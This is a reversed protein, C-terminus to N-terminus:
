KLYEGDRDTWDPGHCDSNEPWIGHAAEIARAFEIMEADSRPENYMEIIKQNSLPKRQPPTTDYLPKYTWGELLQGEPNEYWVDDEDGYPTFTVWAYPPIDPQPSLYLATNNPEQRTGDRLSLNPLSSTTM